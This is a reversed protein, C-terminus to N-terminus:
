NVRFLGRFARELLDYFYEPARVLLVSRAYPIQREQKYFANISNESALQCFTAVKQMLRGM